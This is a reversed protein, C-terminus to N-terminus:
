VQAQPLATTKHYCCLGPGKKSSLLSKSDKFFFFFSTCCNSLGSLSTEGIPAGIM